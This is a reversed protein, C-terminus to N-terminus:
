IWILLISFDKCNKRSLKQLDSLITMIEGYVAKIIFAVFTFM